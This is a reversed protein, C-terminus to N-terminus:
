EDRYKDALDIIIQKIQGIGEKIMTNKDGTYFRGSGDDYCNRRDIAKKIAIIESLDKRIETLGLSSM